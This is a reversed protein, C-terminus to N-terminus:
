TLRTILSTIDKRAGGEQSVEDLFSKVQTTVPLDAGNRGAEDLCIGLDKRMWDVAFGFDFYGEAMSKGSNEMQWSRAAGKTTVSLVKEVDLNAAKAFNIAEALGQVLGSIAIQNVMKTLQGSGPPGMHQIASSYTEIFPQANQLAIAEGGVMISLTGAEAGKQGGTVPADLFYLNQTRAIDAVERAASASITSHDIFVADQPMTKFAGEPGTTVEKLDDDNGVCSFVFAAGKAADEITRAIIGDHERCWNAAKETTRNYITLEIDPHRSLYMAMPHGMVGLGIWAAKVM